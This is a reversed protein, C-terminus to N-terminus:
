ACCECFAFMFEGPDDLSPHHEAEKARTYRLGSKQGKTHVAEFAFYWIM